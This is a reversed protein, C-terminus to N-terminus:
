GRKFYVPLYIRGLGKVWKKCYAQFEDKHFKRDDPNTQFDALRSAGMKKVVESQSPVVMQYFPIQM